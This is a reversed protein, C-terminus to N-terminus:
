PSTDMTSSVYCSGHEDSGALTPLPPSNGPLVHATAKLTFRQLNQALCSCLLRATFAHWYSARAFWGPVIREWLAGLIRWDRSAKEPDDHMLSAGLPSCKEGYSIMAIAQLILEAHEFANRSSLEPSVPLLGYIRASAIECSVVSLVSRKLAAAARMM